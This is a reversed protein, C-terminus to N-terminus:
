ACWSLVLKQACQQRSRLGPSEAGGCRAAVQYAACVNPSLEGEFLRLMNAGGDFRARIQKFCCRPTSEPVLTRCRLDPTRCTLGPSPARVDIFLKFFASCNLLRAVTLPRTPQVPASNVRNKSALLFLSFLPKAGALIQPVIKERKISKYRRQFTSSLPRLTV